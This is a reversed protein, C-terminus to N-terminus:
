KDDSIDQQQQFCYDRSAHKTDKAEKTKRTCAPGGSLFVAKKNTPSDKTASCDHSYHQNEGFQMPKGAATYAAQKEEALFHGALTIRRDCGLFDDALCAFGAGRQVGRPVDADSTALVFGKGLVTVQSFSNAELHGADVIKAKQHAFFLLHKVM